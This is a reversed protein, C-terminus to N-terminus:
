PKGPKSELNRETQEMMQTVDFYIAIKKGDPGALRMVDYLRDGASQLGQSNPQGLNARFKLWDYENAVLCPRIAQAPTKGTGNREMVQTLAIAYARHYAQQRTNGENGALYGLLFHLSLLPLTDIEGIQTQLEALRARIAPVQKQQDLKAIDSLAEVAAHDIGHASIGPRATVDSCAKEAVPILAPVMSRVEDPGPEGALVISSISAALVVFVVCHILRKM